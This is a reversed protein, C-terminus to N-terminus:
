EKIFDAISLGIYGKATETYGKEKPLQKDYIKKIDSVITNEEKQIKEGEKKDKKPLKDLETKLEKLRKNSYTMKANVDNLINMNLGASSARNVQVSFDKKISDVERYIAFYRRGNKEAQLKNYEALKKDIEKLQKIGENDNDQVNKFWDYKKISCFMQGATDYDKRNVFEMANEYISKEYMANDGLKKYFGAAMNYDKLKYFCSDALTRTCKAQDEGKQESCYKEANVYDGKEIYSEVSSCSIVSLLLVASSLFGTIKHYM